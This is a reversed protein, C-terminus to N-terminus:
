GFPRSAIGGNTRPEKIFVIWEVNVITRSFNM